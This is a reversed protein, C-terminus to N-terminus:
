PQEGGMRKVSIAGTTCFKVCYPQGHCLNCHLASDGCPFIAGYPCFELCARDWLFSRRATTPDTSDPFGQLCKMKRDVCQLCVKPTNISTNLDDKHIRIASKEPNAEGFHYVSCVLECIHCGSCKHKNIVLRM